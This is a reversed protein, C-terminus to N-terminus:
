TRLVFLILEYDGSLNTVTTLTASSLVTISDQSACQRWGQFSNLFKYVTMKTNLKIISTNLVEQITEKEVKHRIKQVLHDESQKLCVNTSFQRYQYELCQVQSRRLPRDNMLWHYCRM